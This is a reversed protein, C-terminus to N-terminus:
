ARELQTSGYLGCSSDTEGEPSDSLDSRGDDSNHTVIGNFSVISACLLSAAVRQVDLHAPVM